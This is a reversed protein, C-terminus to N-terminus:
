YEAPSHNYDHCTLTCEGSRHGHSSYSLWGTNKDRSVAESSFEILYPNGSSSHSAHCTYCSTGKLGRLPDGAIHERHLPFSENGLISRRDHCSYCFAYAFPSEDAYADRDYRGSLLFEYRSGHPGRPGSPDDNTHCDSCKMLESGSLAASLSVSRSTSTRETVPHQSVVNIDFESLIARSSGTMGTKDAHCKLCVEYERTAEDLYQGSLSYGQVGSTRDAGIHARQHPDHCDVCEAHNVSGGIRDPLVEVPSHGSGEKVPHRYMKSFEKELNPLEAQSALRGQLKMASRSEETGHCLYCFDEEGHSLMPEGPAGHGVHCSGCGEPLLPSDIHAFALSILLVLPLLVFIGLRRKM